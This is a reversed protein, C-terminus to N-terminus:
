TREATEILDAIEDPKTMDAAHYIVRGDGTAEMERRAAEIEEPRGFGNIVVHCNEVAFAKAIGLGIGSTSGTVVVTRSMGSRGISPLQADCQNPSTIRLYPHSAIRAPLGNATWAQQQRERDCSSD